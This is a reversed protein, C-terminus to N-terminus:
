FPAFHMAQRKSRRVKLLNPEGFDLAKIISKQRLKCCCRQFVNLKEYAAVWTCIAKLINKV